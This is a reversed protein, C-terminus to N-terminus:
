SVSLVDKEKAIGEYQIIAKLHPLNKKIELIKELQKNDEVM